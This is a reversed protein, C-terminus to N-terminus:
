YVKNHRSTYNINYMYQLVVSLLTQTVGLSQVDAPKFSRTIQHIACKVRGILEVTGSPEHAYELSNVALIKDAM